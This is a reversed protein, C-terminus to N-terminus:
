VSYDNAMVFISDNTPVAIAFGMGLSKRFEADRRNKEDLIFDIDEESWGDSVAQHFASKLYHDSCSSFYWQRNSTM